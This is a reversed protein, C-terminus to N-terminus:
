TLPFVRGYGEITINGNDQQINFGDFLQDGSMLNQAKAMDSLGLMVTLIAFVSHLSRAM